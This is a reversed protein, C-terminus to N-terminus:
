RPLARRFFAFSSTSFQKRCDIRMKNLSSQDESSSMKCLMTKDVRTRFRMSRKAPVVLTTVIEDEKPPSVLYRRHIRKECLLRCMRAPCLCWPHCPETLCSDPPKHSVPKLSQAAEAQWKPRISVSPFHSWQELSGDSARKREGNM